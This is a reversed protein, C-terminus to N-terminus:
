RAIACAAMEHVSQGIQTYQSASGKRGDQQGEVWAWGQVDRIEGGAEEVCDVVCHERSLEEAVANTSENRRSM